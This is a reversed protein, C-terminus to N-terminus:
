MCTIVALAQSSAGLVKVVLHRAGMLAVIGLCKAAILSLSM